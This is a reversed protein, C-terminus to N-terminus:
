VCSSNRLSPMKTNYVNGLTLLFFFLAAKITVLLPGGLNGEGAHLTRLWWVHWTDECSTEGGHNRLIFIFDIHDNILWGALTHPTFFLQFQCIKKKCIIYNLKYLKFLKFLNSQEWISDVVMNNSWRVQLTLINLFTPHILPPKM